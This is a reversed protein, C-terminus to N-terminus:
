GPVKMYQNGEARGDARSTRLLKIVMRSHESEPKMRTRNPGDLEEYM